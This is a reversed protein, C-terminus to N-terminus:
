CGLYSSAVLLELAVEPEIPFEPIRKNSSSHEFKYHLYRVVRELIHTSIEPFRILKQESELFRGELMAKMTSSGSSAIQQELFFEHGEASVLKVFTTDSDPANSDAM